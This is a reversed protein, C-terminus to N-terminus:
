GVGRNKMFEKFEKDFRKPIQQQIEEISITLMFYGDKWVGNRLHRGYEIFTAYEMPNGITIYDDGIDIILWSARLSGTDVPTRPRTKALIRQGMELLFKNLWLKFDTDINDLNKVFKEYQSFDFGSKAM